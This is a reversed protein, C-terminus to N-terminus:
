RRRTMISSTCGSGIMYIERQNFNSISGGRILLVLKTQMHIVVL